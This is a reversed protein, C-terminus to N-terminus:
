AVRLIIKLLKKANMIFDKSGMRIYLICTTLRYLARLCFIPFIARNM